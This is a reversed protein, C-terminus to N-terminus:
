YKTDYRNVNKYCILGWLCYYKDVMHTQTQKMCKACKAKRYNKYYQNQDNEYVDKSNLIQTDTVLERNITSDILADSHCHDCSQPYSHQVYFFGFM